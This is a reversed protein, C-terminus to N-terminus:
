REEGRYASNLMRTLEDTDFGAMAEKLEEMTRPKVKPPEVREGSGAGVVDEVARGAEAVPEVPTFSEEAGVGDGRLDWTKELAEQAVRGAEAAM